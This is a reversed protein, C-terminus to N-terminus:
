DYREGTILEAVTRAVIVYANSWLDERLFRPPMDPSGIFPRLVWASQIAVFAYLLSWGWATVRHLPDRALLPRYHRNMTLQGAATALAFIVGHAVVAMRYSVGSAYIVGAVPALSGVVVAVTAQVALVARLASRLDDRLGLVTNVVAFSPLCVLTSVALLLPVKLGSYASQLPRGAYAGMVLGSVFGGALVLGAIRAWPVGAASAQATGHVAFEGRARLLADLSALGPVSM